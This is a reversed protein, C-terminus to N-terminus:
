NIRKCLFTYGTDKESYTYAIVEFNKGDEVLVKELVKKCAEFHNENQNLGHDYGVRCKTKDDCGHKLTANIKGNSYATTVSLAFQVQDLTQM